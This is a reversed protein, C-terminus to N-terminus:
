MNARQTWWQRTVLLIEATGRAVTNEMVVEAEETAVEIEEEEIIRSETNYLISPPPSPM